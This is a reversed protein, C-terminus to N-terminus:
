CPQVLLMGLETETEHGEIEFRGTLDAEFSLDTEEGPSVEEELGYAFARGFWWHVTGIV